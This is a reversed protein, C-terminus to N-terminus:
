DGKPREPDEGSEPTRHSRPSPRLWKNQIKRAGERNNRRRRRAGGGEGLERLHSRWAGVACACFSAELGWGELGGSANWLRLM